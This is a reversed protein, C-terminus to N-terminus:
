GYFNSHIKGRGFSAGGGLFCSINLTTEMPGPHARSHNLVPFAAQLPWHCSRGQERRWFLAPTIVAVMESLWATGADGPGRITM